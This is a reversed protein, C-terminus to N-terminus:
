MSGFLGQNAPFFRVHVRILTANSNFWGCQIFMFAEVVMGHSLIICFTSMACAHSLFHFLFEIKQFTEGIQSMRLSFFLLSCDELQAVRQSHLGGLLDCKNRHSCWILLNGLFTGPCGPCLLVLDCYRYLVACFSKWAIASSGCSSMSEPHEVWEVWCMKAWSSSKSHQLTRCAFCRAHLIMWDVLM